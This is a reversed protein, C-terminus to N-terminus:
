GCRSKGPRSPVARTAAASAGAVARGSPETGLRRVEGARDTSGKAPVFRSGPRRRPRRGCRGQIPYPRKSQSRKPVVCQEPCCQATADRAGSLRAPHGWCKPHESDQPRDSDVTSGDPMEIRVLVPRCAVVRVTPPQTSSATQRGPDGSNAGRSLWPAVPRHTGVMADTGLASPRVCDM